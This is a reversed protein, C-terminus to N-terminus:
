QYAINLLYFVLKLRRGLRDNEKGPFPHHSRIQGIYIEVGEPSGRYQLIM